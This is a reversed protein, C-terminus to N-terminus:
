GVVQEWRHPESLSFFYLIKKTWYQRLEFYIVGRSFQFKIIENFNRMEVFFIM